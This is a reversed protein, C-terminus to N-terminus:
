GLVALVAETAEVTSATGGLDRTRLGQGLAQDVASELARAESEMTLGHRLLLALSLFMALPNAIGQGAIDPASGHVPEFVGPHPGPANTDGLSASPLMGISGTLMAAEDSLIDGFMNETLIVDFHRPASVLQMAANDVLVHELEINPFEEGHVRTVTERWLRSTELVNAKDVSAVKSRAAGFATRTIREVEEVSYSCLDTATTETRTKEGFYIGGTLERVVLLDTGDIIDRRLPSADYLAPLPRVPRLNAYLGLGKRLGLLGQEPRPKGPDTTDWKPGGVAGLLVADATQSAALVEDTLAVGHADISAGGFVHEEVEVDPVFRKLLEVAPALIEPGIGDGPLTVIRTAM